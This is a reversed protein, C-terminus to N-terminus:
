PAAVVEARNYAWLLQFTVVETGGDSYGYSYSRVSGDAWLVPAAGPHPAGFHHPDINNDDATHGKGASSGAGLGDAGRHHERYLQSYLYHTNAWNTDQAADAPDATPDAPNLYYQPKIGKHALLLTNATGAGNTVVALGVGGFTTVGSPLTLQGGLISRYEGNSLPPEGFTKHTAAAYDDKAGVQPGRRSPCLFIKVPQPAGGALVDRYLADQEVYPLIMTYFTGAYNFAARNSPENPFLRNTDAYNHLALGMQKLNNQCSARNAAERVKQVAPLLLGILVAIIAIVVLLEILTFARRRRLAKRHAAVLPLPSVRRM